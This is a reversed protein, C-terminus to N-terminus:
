GERNMMRELFKQFEKMTSNLAMRRVEVTVDGRTVEIIRRAVDCKRRLGSILVMLDDCGILESYITEMIDLCKEAEKIDGRRISDLSRRRLEGIVDALGLIYLEGPVGIEKPQIFSGDRIIKLFIQAESYEELAPDILGGYLLDPYGTLLERIRNLNLNAEKLFYEAENTMGKHALFIAQKSLRTVKRAITQIEQRVEDKKLCDDRISNLIEKLQAIDM